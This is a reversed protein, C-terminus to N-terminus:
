RHRRMRGQPRRQGHLRGRVSRREVLWHRRCAVSRGGGRQTAAVHRYAPPSLLSRTRRPSPSPPRVTRPAGGTRHCLRRPASERKRRQWVSCRRCRSSVADCRLGCEALPGRAFYIPCAIEVFVARKARSVEETFSERVHIADHPRAISRRSRRRHPYGARASVRFGTCGSPSRRQAIARLTSAAPSDPPQLRNQRNPSVPMERSSRPKGIARRVCARMHIDRRRLWEFRQANRRHADPRSHLLPPNEDGAASRM